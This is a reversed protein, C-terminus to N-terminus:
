YQVRNHFYPAFCVRGGGGLAAGRVSPVYPHICSFTVSEASNLMLSSSHMLVPSAPGSTPAPSPAPASQALAVAAATPPAKTAYRCAIFQWNFFFVMSSVAVYELSTAITAMDREITKVWNDIDGLEKLATNFGEIMQVWQTTQKSFKAM